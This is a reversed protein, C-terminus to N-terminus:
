NINRKVRLLYRRMLSQVIETEDTHTHTHIYINIYDLLHIMLRMSNLWETKLASYTPSNKNFKKM